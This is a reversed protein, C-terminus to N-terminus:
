WKGHIGLQKMGILVGATMNSGFEESEISNMPNVGSFVLTRLM